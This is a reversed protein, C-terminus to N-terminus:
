GRAEMAVANEFRGKDEVLGFMRDECDGYSCRRVGTFGHARLAHELSLTDWMWLHRSTRLWEYIAGLPSASREREGLYTESM